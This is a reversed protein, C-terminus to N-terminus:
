LKDALIFYTVYFLGPILIFYYREIIILFKLLIIHNFIRLPYNNRIYFEFGTFTDFIHTSLIFANSSGMCDSFKGAM